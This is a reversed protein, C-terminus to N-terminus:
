HVGHRRDGLIRTTVAAEIERSFSAARAKVAAQADSSILDFNIAAAARMGGAASSGVTASLDTVNGAAWVGEIDTRGMEDTAVYLGGSMHDSLKGGLLEYVDARAVMRPMVTVAEVDFRRGGAVEVGRLTGDEIVLQTVRGQVVSVNLAALQLWESESPEPMEHLFLTVNDSLQRFLLTQHVSMAGTGLVGLKRGRVEWGHCYPCHLVSSGWLEAVGPIDPLEDILGTALLLRRCNVTHGDTFDVEFGDTDRRVAAVSGTTIQAGYHNAERRGKALLELPSIGENGLLNHAGDAKANRPEGGDIVLVTRLSRALTTAAGLGAPGGGIVVVDYFNDTSNM